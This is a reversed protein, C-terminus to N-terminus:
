TIVGWTAGGNNTYFVTNATAANDVTVRAQTTAASRKGLVEILAFTGSWAPANTAVVNAIEVTFVNGAPVNVFNFVIAGAMLNMFGTNNVLVFSKYTTIRTGALADIATRFDSLTNACNAAKVDLKSALSAGTSDRYGIAYCFLPGQVNNVILKTLYSRSEIATLSVELIADILVTTALSGIPDVILGDIQITSNLSTSHHNGFCYRLMAVESRLTGGISKAVSNEDANRNQFALPYHNASLPSVGSFRKYEFYPEVLLSQGGTQFDIDVSGSASVIKQRFIRPRFVTSNGCALKISRVECDTVIPENITVTGNYNAFTAVGTKKGFWSIGDADVASPTLVNSIVPNNIVADGSVGIGVIGQCVGGSSNTRDVGNVTVNDLVVKAYDGVVGLGYNENVDSANNNKCNLITLPCGVIVTGGQSAANHRFTIASGCKENCDIYLSGGTISGNNVATTAAYMLHNFATAGSSVTIAVNGNCVIHLSGVPRTSYSLLSGSVLFSGEFQVSIALPFAYALAAQIAATDDAIGDGVAGFDKVSVSERLKAQVNTTVAGAGAPIYTVNNASVTINTGDNIGSINDYTGILVDNADKLLFKYIFGETLWIEGSPVRGSADLIIPNSHTITGSSTTYTTQPTTTGAAYTFIKGGTLVAGSNTFFQAAVGGVPSLNVAM